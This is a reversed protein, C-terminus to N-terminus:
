IFQINAHLKKIDKLQHIEECNKNFYEQLYDPTSKPDWSITNSFDWYAPRISLLYPILVFVLDNDYTLDTFVNSLKYESINDSTISIALRTESILRSEDVDEERDEREKSTKNKEYGERQNDLEDREEQPIRGEEHDNANQTFGDNSNRRKRTSTQVHPENEFIELQRAFTTRVAQDRVVATRIVENHQESLLQEAEALTLTLVFWSNMVSRGLTYLKVM